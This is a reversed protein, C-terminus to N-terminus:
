CFDEQIVQAARIFQKHSVIYEKGGVAITVAHCTNASIALEAKPRVERLDKSKFTPLTFEVKMPPRNSIALDVGFVSHGRRDAMPGGLKPVYTQRFAATALVAATKDKGKALDIGSCGLQYPSCREQGLQMYELEAIIKHQWDPVGAMMTPDIESVFKLIGQTTRVPKM